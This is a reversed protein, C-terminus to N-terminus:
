VIYKHRSRRQNKKKNSSKGKSNTKISTPGVYPRSIKQYYNETEYKRKPPAIFNDVIYDFAYKEFKVGYPKTTFAMCVIIVPTSCYMAYKWQMGLKSCLLYCILIVLPAAIGLCVTQRATLPGIFKTEYQRIEKPVPMKIM